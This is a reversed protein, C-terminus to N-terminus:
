ANNVTCGLFGSAQALARGGASTMSWEHMSPPKPCLRKLRFTLTTEQKASMPKVTETTRAGSCPVKIVHMCCANGDYSSLAPEALLRQLLLEQVHPWAM